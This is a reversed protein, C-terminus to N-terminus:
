EGLSERMISVWSRIESTIEKDEMEVTTGNDSCKIIKLLGSERDFIELDFTNDSTLKIKVDLTRENM